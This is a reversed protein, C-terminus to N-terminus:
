LAILGIKIGAVVASIRNTAGLKRTANRLHFEVTKESIVLIEGIEWNTKGEKCWTLCEIEKRTLVNPGKLAPRVAAEIGVAASFHSSM